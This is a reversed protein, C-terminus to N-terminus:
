EAGLWRALNILNSVFTDSRIVKTTKDDPGHYRLRGNEVWAGRSDLDNLIAAVRNDLAKTQKIKVDPPSWPPEPNVITKTKNFEKEISNLKSSVVFAYHTPMDDSSYTLKYDQTFFLPRNTHLEYFRALKGDAIESRRYFPIATSLPKLFREADEIHGLNRRSLNMLTRMVRQSEGGTIAPPEFKRAWAPHMDRDYQQSWGPQPEPLQALILFDGGRCAANRYDSNRYIDAADLLLDILDCITNDNLTYLDSYKTGPYKRPWQAPISAKLVPFLAPDPLTSFRQPWAGNPYQSKLVASLAYLVTEHLPQDVHGLEVDLEMLFQIASQSKNDDFTTTNRLKSEHTTKTGTRYAYKAREKIDFEIRNDWGGSQLQGQRLAEATERAAELLVPDKCIRYAQLFGQGVAPTGPPELWATTATVKGEGERKTLDNSVQFVYGGHASASSRFFSVAQHLAKTVAPRTLVPQPDHEVGNANSIGSASFLICAFLIRYQRVPPTRVQQASHGTLHRRIM